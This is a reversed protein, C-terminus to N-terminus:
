GNFSNQFAAASVGYNYLAKALDAMKTNASNQKAYAYSNVTYDVFQVTAFKKGSKVQLEATYIIDGFDLVYVDETHIKYTSTAEDILECDAITYEVSDIENYDTDYKTIVVKFDDEAVGPATFKYYISNTYDFYVGAATFAIAGDTSEDNDKWNEDASIEGLATAGTVGADVLATTKYGRYLQAKAGYVLLDAILTKMAAYQTEDLGLEGAPTALLNQCNALVSYEDKTEVVDGNFILEAKINDGMCQPAVGTFTYEYEGPNSTAVGEVVTEEENFTFRMQAGAHDEDITAFYSVSIDTGLKVMASDITSVAVNPVVAVTDSGAAIAVQDDALNTTQVPDITAEFTYNALNADEKARLYIVALVGDSTSDAFPNGFGRIYTVAGLTNNGGVLCAADLVTTPIDAKAANAFVELDATTDVVYEFASNDYKLDFKLASIGPNNELSVTVTFERGAKVADKSTTVVLKAPDAASVSMVPLLGLLMVIACVASIIKVTKKM